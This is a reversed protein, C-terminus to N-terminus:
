KKDAGGSNSNGQSTTTTTSSSGGAPPKPVSVMKPIEASDRALIIGGPIKQMSPISASNKVSVVPRGSESKDKSMKIEESNLNSTVFIVVSLLACIFTIGVGINLYSNISIWCNKHDFASENQDCYYEKAIKLQKDIARNSILFAVLVGAITLLFM